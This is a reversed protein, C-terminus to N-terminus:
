SSRKHRRPSHKPARSFARPRIKAFLISSAGIVRTNGQFIISSCKMPIHELRRDSEIRDISQRSRLRNVIGSASSIIVIAPPLMDHHCKIAHAIGYLKIRISRFHTILCMRTPDARAVIVESFIEMDSIVYESLSLPFISSGCTQLRMKADREFRM